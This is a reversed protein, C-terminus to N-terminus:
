EPPPPDPEVSRWPYRAADAYKKSMMDWYDANRQYRAAMRASITAAKELDEALSEASGERAKTEMPSQQASFKRALAEYAAYSTLAQQRAASIRRLRTTELGVAFLVGVVAIVIMLRRVTFRVRPRRM